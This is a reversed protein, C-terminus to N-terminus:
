LWGKEQAETEQLERLLRYGDEYSVPRKTVVEYRDDVFPREFNRSISLSRKIILCRRASFNLLSYQSHPYSHSLDYWFVFDKLSQWKPKKGVMEDLRKKADEHNEAHWVILESDHEAVLRVESSLIEVISPHDVHCMFVRSQNM